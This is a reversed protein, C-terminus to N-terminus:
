KPVDSIGSLGQEVIKLSAKEREVTPHVILWSPWTYRNTTNVVQNGKVVSIAIGDTIARVPTYNWGGDLTYFGNVVEM